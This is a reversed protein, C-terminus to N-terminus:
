KGSGKEVWILFEQNGKSGTISSPVIGKIQWTPTSKKIYNVIKDVAYQQLKVDHIIGKKGIKRKELEFQPKILGVFTFSENAFLQEIKDIIHTLSIFSVDTVLLNPMGVTFIDTNIHRFNTQEISVVAPNKQLSSALQATGVDLAYVVKAGHQLVCDTFGGTSAGIDLVIKDQCVISFTEIAHALKLGGRSVFSTEPFQVIIDDANTVLWSPKTLMKGANKHYVYGAKIAVKAKERSPFDGREVLFLDLRLENM